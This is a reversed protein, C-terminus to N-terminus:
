ACAGDRLQRAGCGRKLGFLQWRLQPNRMHQHQDSGLSSHCSVKFAHEGDCSGISPGCRVEGGHGFRDKENKDPPEPPCSNAGAHDHHQPLLPADLPRPWRATKQHGQALVVFDRSAKTTAMKGKWKPAKYLVLGRCVELRRSPDLDSRGVHVKQFRRIAGPCPEVKRLWALLGCDASLTQCTEDESGNECPPRACPWTNYTRSITVRRKPKRKSSRKRTRTGGTKCFHAQVGRSRARACPSGTRKHPGRDSENLGGQGQECRQAVSTGVDSRYTCVFSWEGEEGMKGNDRHVRKGCRRVTHQPDQNAMDWHEAQSKSWTGTEYRQTRVLLRVAFNMMALTREGGVPKPVLVMAIAMFQWPRAQKLWQQM